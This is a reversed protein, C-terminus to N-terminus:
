NTINCSVLVHTVSVLAIDSFAEVTTSDANCVNCTVKSTFQGYFLEKIFSPNEDELKDVLFRQFEHEDYQGEDKFDPYLLDFQRTHIALTTNHLTLM